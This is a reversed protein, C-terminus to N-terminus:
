GKPRVAGGILAGILFTLNNGITLVTTVGVVVFTPEPRPSLAQDLPAAILCAILAALPPIGFVRILWRTAGAPQDAWLWASIFGSALMSVGMMPAPLWMPLVRRLLVSTTVIAAPIAIACILQAITLKDQNSQSSTSTKAV